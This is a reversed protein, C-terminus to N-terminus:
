AVPRGRALLPDARRTSSIASSTAGSLKIRDYGLEAFAHPLRDLPLDRIMCPDLAIKMKKGTATPM